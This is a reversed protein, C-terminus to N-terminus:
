GTEVHTDPIKLYKFVPIRYEAVGGGPRGQNNPGVNQTRKGISGYYHQCKNRITQFRDSKSVWAFPRLMTPWFGGVVRLLTTVQQM